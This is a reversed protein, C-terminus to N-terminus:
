DGKILNKSKNKINAKTEDLDKQSILGMGVQFKEFYEMAFKTLHLQLEKEEEEDSVPYHRTIFKYLWEEFVVIKQCLDKNTKQDLCLNRFDRFDLTTPKFDSKVGDVEIEM